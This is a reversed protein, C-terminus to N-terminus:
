REVTYEAWVIDRFVDYSVYPGTGTIEAEGKKKDGGALFSDLEWLQAILPSFSPNEDHIKVDVLYTVNKELDDIERSTFSAGTVTSGTRFEVESRGALWGDGFRLTLFEVRTEGGGSGSNPDDLCQECSTSTQISAASSEPDEITPGPGPSRESASKPEAPHLVLIAEAPISDDETLLYSEGSPRYARAETADVEPIAAVLIDGSGAWRKRHSEFPVYFDMPGPMEAVSQQFEDGTVGLRWAAAAVVDRGTRSEVFDQFLLKHETLQSFRM